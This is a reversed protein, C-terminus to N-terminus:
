SIWSDVRPLFFMCAFQSGDRMVPKLDHSIASVFNAFKQMIATRNCTESINGECVDVDERRVHVYPEKLSSRQGIWNM